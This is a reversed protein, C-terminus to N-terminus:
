AAASAASTPARPPQYTVTERGHGATRVFPSPPNRVGFYILAGRTSGGYLGDAELGAARQFRRLLDHDYRRSGRNRLNYATRPALERAQAENFTGPAPTAPAPVPSPSPPQAPPIQIGWTSPDLTPTQPQSPTPQGPQPVVGGAGSMLIEHIRALISPDIGPPVGPITPMQPVPATAPSPAPAPAPPVIGPPMPPMLPAPFPMPPAGYAPASVSPPIAAAAAARIQAARQRLMEATTPYNPALTAAFAEIQGPDTAVALYRAVAPLLPETGAPLNGAPLRNLNDNGGSDPQSDDDERQSLALLVLGGVAALALVVGM